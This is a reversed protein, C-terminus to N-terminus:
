HNKSICSDESFNAFRLIIKQGVQAACNSNKCSFLLLKSSVLACNGQHLNNSYFDRLSKLAFNLSSNKKGLPLKFTISSLGKADFDWFVCKSKWTTNSYPQPMFGLVIEESSSLNRLKIGSLAASVIKSNVVEVTLEKSSSADSKKAITLDERSSASGESGHSKRSESKMAKNRHPSRAIEDNKIPDRVVNQSLSDAFLKSNEYVFSTFRLKSSNSITSALRVAQAPIFISTEGSPNKGSTANSSANDNFSKDNRTGISIGQSKVADVILITLVINKRNINIKSGNFTM